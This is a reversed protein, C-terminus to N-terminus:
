VHKGVNENDTQKLPQCHQGDVSNRETRTRLTRWEPSTQTIGGAARPQRLVSLLPGSSNMLHAPTINYLNVVKYM